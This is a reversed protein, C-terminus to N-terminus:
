VHKINLVILCASTRFIIIFFYRINLFFVSRFLNTLQIWCDIAKFDLANAIQAKKLRDGRNARAIKYCQKFTATPALSDWLVWQSSYLQEFARWIRWTLAFSCFQCTELEALWTFNNSLCIENSFTLFLTTHKTCFRHFRTMTSDHLDFVTWSGHRANIMKIRECPVNLFFKM